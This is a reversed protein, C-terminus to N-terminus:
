FILTVPRQDKEFTLIPFRFDFPKRKKEGPHSTLLITNKMPAGRDNHIRHPIKIHM